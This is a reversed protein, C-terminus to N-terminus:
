STSLNTPSGLMPNEYGGSSMTIHLCSSLTSFYFTVFGGFVIDFLSEM